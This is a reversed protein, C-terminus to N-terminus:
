NNEHDEDQLSRGYMYTGQLQVGHGEHRRERSIKEREFRQGLLMLM